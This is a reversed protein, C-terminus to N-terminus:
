LSSRGAIGAYRSKRIGEPLSVALRRFSGIGALALSVAKGGFLESEMPLVTGYHWVNTRAGFKQITKRGKPTLTGNVERKTLCGWTKTGAWKNPKDKLIHVTKPKGKALIYMSEFADGYRVPTPPTNREKEVLITDILRLQISQFYVVQRFQATSFTAEGRENPVHWVLVGGPKLVRLLEVATRRFLYDSPRGKQFFEQKGPAALILDITEAPLALLVQLHDACRIVKGPESLLM